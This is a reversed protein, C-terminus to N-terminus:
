CELGMPSADSLVALRTCAWPHEMPSAHTVWLAGMPRWQIRLTLTLTLIWHLGTLSGHTIWAHGMPSGDGVWRRNMHWCQIGHTVWANDMPLRHATWPRGM